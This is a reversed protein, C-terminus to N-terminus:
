VAKEVRNVEYKKEFFYYGTVKRLCNLNISFFICSSSQLGYVGPICAWSRYMPRLFTVGSVAVNTMQLQKFNSRKSRM